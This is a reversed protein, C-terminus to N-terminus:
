LNIQEMETCVRTASRLVIHIRINDIARRLRITDATIGAQYQQYCHWRYEFQLTGGILMSPCSNPHYIETDAQYFMKFNNFM